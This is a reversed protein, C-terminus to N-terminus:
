YSLRAHHPKERQESLVQDEDDDTALSAARLQPPPDASDPYLPVVHLWCLLRLQNAIVKVFNGRAPAPKVAALDTEFVVVEQDSFLVDEFQEVLTL